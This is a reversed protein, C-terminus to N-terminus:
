ITLEISKSERNVNNEILVTKWESCCQKEELVSMKWHEKWTDFKICVNWVSQTSDEVWCLITMCFEQEVSYGTNHWCGYAM